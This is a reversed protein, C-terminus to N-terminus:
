HVSHRASADPRFTAPRQDLPAELFHRIALGIVYGAQSSLCAAGATLLIRWTSNAEIFGTAIVAGIVLAMVPILIMIKFRQALVAGILTSAIAVFLM